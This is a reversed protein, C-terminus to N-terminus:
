GQPRLGQVYSAVAQMEDQSLRSAINRMMQNPDSKREGSAYAKLQSVLYAAHQGALRPYGAPENGHGTPGHCAMCSSIEKSMEGGRYLLQGQDVTDPNGVGLPASQAAYYAALDQIDQDSLGGTQPTMLVNQRAGNQFAHLQRVLYRENQGALSPWDPNQSIGNQGHCATCATSKAKGADASGAANAAPCAGLGFTLAAILACASRAAGNFKSRTFSEM